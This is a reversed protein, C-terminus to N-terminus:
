SPSSVEEGDREIAVARENVVTIGDDLFVKRLASALEPESPPAVRGVLSVRTGLHAFLQAQELGVYGGGIVVLSAPLEDLEMATTSTLYDVESLGPLDPIAPEAGTAILYASAPLALGDVLLTDSQPSRQASSYPRVM